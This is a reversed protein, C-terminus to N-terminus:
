IEEGRGFKRVKGKIGGMLTQVTKMDITKIGGNLKNKFSKIDSAASSRKKVNRKLIAWYREIPRLEPSNPPNHTKKVYAVENEEYWSVADRSYHISALDPWFLPPSIHNQYFPLLRKNLCEKIYEGSKLTGTIVYPPTRLGCSCIAQWIMYKKAYVKASWYFIVSYLKGHM